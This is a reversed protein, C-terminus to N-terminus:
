IKNGTIIEYNRVIMNTRAVHSICYGDKEYMCKNKKLKCYVCVKHNTANCFYAIACLNDKM